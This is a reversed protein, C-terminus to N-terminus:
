EEQLDSKKVVKFDGDKGFVPRKDGFKKSIQETLVHSYTSEIEKVSTGAVQAILAIPHESLLLKTIWWHRCHYLDFWELGIEKLRVRLAKYTHYFVDRASVNGDDYPSFLYHEPNRHRQYKKLWQALVPTEITIQRGKRVKSTAARVAVSYTPEGGSGTGRSEVDKNRLGFVEGSRLGGRTIMAVVNMLLSRNYRDRPDQSEKAWANTTNIFDRFNAHTIRRRKPGEREVQFEWVPISKDTCLREKKAFLFMKRIVLLEDRVVDRRITGQARKSAVNEQRWKLYGNFKSGDISSIKTDLGAPYISKLFECGLNVRYNQIALTRPSLQESRVLSEQHLSFRRVLDKLSLALIRQGSQVKALVNIIETHARALAEQKDTTQLSKRYHRGEEKLHIRVFWSSSEIDSRRYLTAKHTGFRVVQKDREAGRTGYDRSPVYASEPRAPGDAEPESEGESGFSVRAM